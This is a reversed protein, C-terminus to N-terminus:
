KSKHFSFQCVRMFIPLFTTNKDIGVTLADREFLTISGDFFVSIFFVEGKYLFLEDISGGGGSVYIKKFGDPASKDVVLYNVGQHGTGRGGREPQCPPHFDYRIVTEPLGDGDVDIKAQSLRIWQREIGVRIRKQWEEENTVRPSLFVGGGDWFFFRDVRKLLDENETLDLEKWDPQTFDTWGAPIPRECSLPVNKRAHYNLLKLYDQCVTKNKPLPLPMNRYDVFPVVRKYQDAYSPISAGFGICFVILGIFIKHIM